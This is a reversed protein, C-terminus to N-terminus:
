IEPYKLLTTALELLVKHAKFARLAYHCGSKSVALEFLLCILFAVGQWKGTENFDKDKSHSM